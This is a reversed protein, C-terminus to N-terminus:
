QKSYLVDMINMVNLFTGSPVTLLAPTNTLKLSLELKSRNSFHCLNNNAASYLSINENRTLM